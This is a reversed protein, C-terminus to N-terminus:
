HNDGSGWGALALEIAGPGAPQFGQQGGATGGAGVQHLHEELAGIMEAHQGLLLRDGADAGSEAHPCAQPHKQTIAVAKDAGVVEAGRAQHLGEVLRQAHEAQQPWGLAAATELPKRGQAVGALAHVM